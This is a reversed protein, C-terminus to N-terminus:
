GFIMGLDGFTRFDLFGFFQLLKYRYKSGKAAKELAKKDQYYYIDGTKILKWSNPYIINSTNNKLYSKIKKLVYPSQKGIYINTFNSLFGVKQFIVENLTKKKRQIKERDREKKWTHSDAASSTDDHDMM